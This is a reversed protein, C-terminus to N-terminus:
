TLMAWSISGRPPMQLAITEASIQWPLDSLGYLSILCGMERIDIEELLDDAKVQPNEIQYGLLRRVATFGFKQYLHVAPANQEIVELVM